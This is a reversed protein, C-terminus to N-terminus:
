GEMFVADLILQLCIKQQEQGAAKYTDAFRGLEKKQTAKGNGCGGGTHSGSNKVEREDTERAGACQNVLPPLM